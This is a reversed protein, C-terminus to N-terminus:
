YSVESADVIGIDSRIEDATRYYLWGQSDLVPIKTAATELHGAATTQLWTGTIYKATLNGTLTGGSTSLKGDLASKVVKNQVPNESTDSLQTDVTPIDDTIAYQKISLEVDNESTINIM